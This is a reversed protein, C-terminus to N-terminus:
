EPQAELSRGPGPPSPSPREQGSIGRTWASGFAARPGASCRDRVDGCVQLCAALATLAERSQRDRHSARRVSWCTRHAARCLRRSSEDSHRCTLGRQRRGDIWRSHVMAAANHGRGSGAEGSSLDASSPQRVTAYASPGDRCMCFSSCHAEQGTAPRARQHKAECRRRRGPLDGGDESCPGDGRRLSPCCDALRTKRM